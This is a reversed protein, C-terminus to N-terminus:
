MHIHTYVGHKMEAIRLRDRHTYIVTLRKFICIYTGIYEGLRHTYMNDQIHIYTNMVGTHTHTYIEHYSAQSHIYTNVLDTHTYIM